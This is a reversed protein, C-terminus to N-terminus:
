RQTGTSITGSVTCTGIRRVAEVPGGKIGVPDDDHSANYDDPHYDAYVPTSLVGGYGAGMIVLLVLSSSTRTICRHDVAGSSGDTMGVSSRYFGMSAGDHGKESERGSPGIM